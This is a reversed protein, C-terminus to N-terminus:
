IVPLSHSRHSKHYLECKNSKLPLTNGPKQLSSSLSRSQAKTATLDLLDKM